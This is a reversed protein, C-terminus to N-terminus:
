SINNKYLKFELHRELLFALFCIVFHGKIRKPTWVFVPEVELSTKMIRFSQEIRWLNHYASIVDEALLEDQNTVIAYYGDFCSDAEIAATDLFYDINEAQQKIYKKAGRRNSAKIKSFNELLDQAKDVMRQRDIKDKKARKESYTIVIKQTLSTKKSGIYFSDKNSIVKYSLSEDSDQLQSYGGSFVEDKIKDAASKLRYAFIYSYGRNTIEKLNVKSAIGKDAVIVVKRIGFRKELADLASSLTKGDFTNGSFLEYGIPRGYCDILLGMVVQVKNPKGNKSYGFDKLGDAIVSSFSFTTVDYFVVDVSMNFLNRNTDFIEKEIKEKSDALIDLSRYIDNLGVPCTNTYKDQNNYVSLKSSPNLLHSVAMLFATKSLDFKIKTGSAITALIKDLSFAEWIKKYAVYGWNTIEAESISGLSLPSDAKSLELLRRAFNQFTENGEIIDLRGLNFLVKHRTVGAQKFSEVAQCYKYNGSKTIKIFM